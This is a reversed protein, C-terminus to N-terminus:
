IGIMTCIIAGGILGIIISWLKVKQKLAAEEAQKETRRQEALSLQQDLMSNAQQIRLLPDANREDLIQKVSKPQQVMTPNSKVHRVPTSHADGFLQNSIVKGLDRGVQNVTSSIFKEGYSKKAM